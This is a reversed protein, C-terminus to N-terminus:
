ADTETIEVIVRATWLKGPPCMEDLLEEGDPSTEIRLSRGAPIAIADEKGSKVVKSPWVHDVLGIAM